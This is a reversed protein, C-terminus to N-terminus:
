RLSFARVIGEGSGVYLQGSWVVPPSMNAFGSGIVTSFLQAGTRANAAFFTSETSVYVVGNAVAAQSWIEPLSEIAWRESGTRADLARFGTDIAGIYVLGNGIAPTTHVDDGAFGRWLQVGDVLRLAVIDFGGGEAGTAGEPVYITDGSIAPGGRFIGGGATTQWRIAGTATRLDFVTGDLAAAILNTGDASVAVPGWVGSWEPDNTITTRWMIAGTSASLRYIDAGTSLYVATGAVVPTAMTAQGSLATTWLRAGTERNFAAASAHDGQYSAIVSHTTLAPSTTASSGGMSISWVRRGTAAQLAALTGDFTLVYARGGSVAVSAEVSQDVGLSRSWVVHLSGVNATSLTTERPNNGTHTFSYGSQTWGPPGPSAGIAPSAGAALCLAVFLTAPVLLRRAIKM